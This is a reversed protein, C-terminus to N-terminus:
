YKYLNFTSDDTNTSMDNSVVSYNSSNSVVSNNETKVPEKIIKEKVENKKNEIQVAELANLNTNLEIQDFLDKNINASEIMDADVNSDINSSDVISYDVMLDPQEINVPPATVEVNWVKSLEEESLEKRDSGMENLFDQFADERAIGYSEIDGTWEVNKAETEIFRKRYSRLEDDSFKLYLDANEQMQKSQSERLQQLDEQELKLDLAWDREIILEEGQIVMLAAKQKILLAATAKDVITEANKFTDALMGLRESELKWRAEQEADLKDYIKNMLPSIVKKNLLTGIGFGIAGAVAVGLAPLALSVAGSLATGLGGVVTTIVGGLKTGLGALISSIKVGLIGKLSDFFGGTEEQTESQDGKIDLLDKLLDNREDDRNINEDQQQEILFSDENQKTYQDEGNKVLLNFNSILDKFGETNVTLIKDFLNFDNEFYEKDSEESEISIDNTAPEISIDNTAPELKDSINDNSELIPEISIDDVIVNIDDPDSETDEKSEIPINDTTPEIKDPPQEVDGLTSEEKINRIEDLTNSITDSMMSIIPSGTLVSINKIINKPKFSDKIDGIVESTKKSAKEKTKGVATGVFGKKDEKRQKKEKKEKKKDSKEERESENNFDENQKKLTNSIKSMMSSFLKSSKKMNDNLQSTNEIIQELDRKENNISENITELKDNNDAM